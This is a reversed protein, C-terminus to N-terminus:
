GSLARLKALLGPIEAPTADPLTAAFYEAKIGLKNMTSLSTELPLDWDDDYLIQDALAQLISDWASVDTSDVAPVEDFQAEIAAERLFQRCDTGVDPHTDAEYLLNSRLCEYVAAVCGEIEATLPPPARQDCTLAWAVTLLGNLRQGLPLRDFAAVAGEDWTETVLEDLLIELGCKFLKLEAGKLVRKGLPTQYM